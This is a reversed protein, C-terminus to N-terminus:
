FGIWLVACQAPPPPIRAGSDLGRWNPDTQEPEPMGPDCEPPLATTDAKEATPKPNATPKPEPLFFM